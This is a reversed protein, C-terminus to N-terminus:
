IGPQATVPPNRGVPSARTGDDQLVNLWQKCISDVIKNQM